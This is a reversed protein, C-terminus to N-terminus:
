ETSNMIPKPVKPRVIKTTIGSHMVGNVTIDNSHKSVAAPKTNKVKTYSLSGSSKELNCSCQKSPSQM